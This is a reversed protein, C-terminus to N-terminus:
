KMLSQVYDAIEVHKMYVCSAMQETDYQGLNYKIGGVGIHANWRGNASQSVGHFSHKQKCHRNLLNQRQTLIRLNKRQNNLGNGDIHDVVLRKGPKMLQRHMSISKPIRHPHTESKSAITFSRTAYHLTSKQYHTVCWKYKMLEEYDDDDVICVRKTDHNLPITKM